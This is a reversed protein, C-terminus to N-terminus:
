ACLEILVWLSLSRYLLRMEFAENYAEEYFFSLFDMRSCSSNKGRAEFRELRLVVNSYDKFSVLGKSIVVVALSSMGVSATVPPCFM